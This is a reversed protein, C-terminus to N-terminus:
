QVSGFSVSPMVDNPPFARARLWYVYIPYSLIGNNNSPSIFFSSSTGYENGTQYINNYDISLYANEYNGSPAFIQVSYLKVNNTDYYGSSGTQSGACVIQVLNNWNSSTRLYFGSLGINNWANVNSYMNGYLEWITPYSSLISPLTGLTIGYGGSTTQNPAIEINTTNYTIQTGTTESWGSPLASLSGWAQYYPFVVAGDDYEAYTSSLQPAEGIGSTGSSSLFNVSPDIKLYIIISSSAPIGNKINLWTILKGSQNSEIWAPIVTGNTYTYEFDAFISNYTLSQFSNETINVMQQFPVPTQTSQTNTLTIPVYLIPSGFSVSPM